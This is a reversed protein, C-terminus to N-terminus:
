LKHDPAPHQYGMTTEPRRHGMIEMITKLDWGNMYRRTGFTHRLDLFLLRVKVKHGLLIKWRDLPAKEVAKWFANTLVM